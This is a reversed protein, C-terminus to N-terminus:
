CRFRKRKRELTDVGKHGKRQIGRERLKFFVLKEQERQNTRKRERGFGVSKM